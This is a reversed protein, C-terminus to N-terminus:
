KKASIQNSHIRYHLLIEDIIYFKYGRKIARKWLDFDEEPTKNIDYRNNTDNWFNKSMGVCPHAIVNHNKDFSAEIPHQSMNLTLTVKDDLDIYCFDSSVIDFGDKLYKLQTDIRNHSYFDDLNTNFIYECGDEFAKTIIFNMADAYNIKEINYFISDAVLRKKDSGYNIEYFTIEVNDVDQNKLTNICKDVWRKPYIDSINKHFLVIGLKDKYM